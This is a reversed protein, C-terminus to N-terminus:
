SLIKVMQFFAPHRTIAAARREFPAGITKATMGTINEIRKILRVNLYCCPCGLTLGYAVPALQRKNVGVAHGDDSQAELVQGAVGPLNAEVGFGGDELM